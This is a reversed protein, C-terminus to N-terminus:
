RAADLMKSGHSGRKVPKASMFKAADDRIQKYYAGAQVNAQAAAKAKTFDDPLVLVRPHDKHLTSLVDDARSENSFAFCLLWLSVSVCLFCLSFIRNEKGRHRQARQPQIRTEYLM